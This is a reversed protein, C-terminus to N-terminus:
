LHVRVCFYHEVIVCAMEGEMRWSGDPPGSMLGTQVTRDGNGTRGGVSCTKPSSSSKSSNKDM